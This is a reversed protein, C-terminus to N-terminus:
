VLGAGDVALRHVLQPRFPSRAGGWKRGRKIIPVIFCSEPSTSVSEIWDNEHNGIETFLDGEVRRLGLSAAQPLRKQFLELQRKAAVKGSQIPGMSLSIALSECLQSKHIRKEAQWDPILGLQFFLGVSAMAGAALTFSLRNIISISKM